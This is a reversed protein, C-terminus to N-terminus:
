SRKLYKQFFHEVDPDFEHILYTVDGEKRRKLATGQLELQIGFPTTIYLSEINMNENCNMSVMPLNETTAAIDDCSIVLTSGPLDLYSMVQGTSHMVDSPYATPGSIIFSADSKRYRLPSNWREVNGRDDEFQGFVDGSYAFSYDPEAKFIDTRGKRYIFFNFVRHTLYTRALSKEPPLLPSDENVNIENERFDQAAKEIEQVHNRFIPHKLSVRIFPALKLAVTLPYQGRNINFLIHNSRKLEALTKQRVLSEGRSFGQLQQQSLALANDRQEQNVQTLHEEQRRAEDRRRQERAEEEQQHALKELAAKQEKQATENMEQKDVITKLVATNFSIVLGLVIFVVSFRGEKTLHRKNDADKTYLEHTLAWIASVTAIILGAYPLVILLTRM